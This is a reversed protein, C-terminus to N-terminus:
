PANIRGTNQRMRKLLVHTETAQKVLACEAHTTFLSRYYKPSNGFKRAREEASPVLVVPKGCITCNM